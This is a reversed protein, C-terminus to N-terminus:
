DCINSKRRRIPESLADKPSRNKSRDSREEKPEREQRVPAKKPCASTTAFIHIQQKCAWKPRLSALSNKVNDSKPGVLGACMHM